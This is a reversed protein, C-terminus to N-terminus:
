YSSSVRESHGSLSNVVSSTIIALKNSWFLGEDPVEAVPAAPDPEAPKGCSACFQDGNPIEDGCQDRRAM